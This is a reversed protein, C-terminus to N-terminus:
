RIANPVEPADPLPCWHTIDGDVRWHTEEFENAEYWGPPLFYKDLTECYDTYEDENNCEITYIPAHFARIRRDKGHSNKFYALVFYGPRPLKKDVSIWECM